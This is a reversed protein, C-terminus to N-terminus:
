ATALRTRLHLLGNGVTRQRSVTANLAPSAYLLWQEIITADIQSIAVQPRPLSNPSSSSSDVAYRLGHINYKLGDISQTFRLMTLSHGHGSGMEFVITKPPSTLPDCNLSVVLTYYERDKPSLMRNFRTTLELSIKEEFLRCDGTTVAPQAIIAPPGDPLCRNPSAHASHFFVGLLLVWLSLLFLLMVEIPKISKLPNKEIHRQHM